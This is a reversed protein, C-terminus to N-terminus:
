SCLFAVTIDNSFSHEEEEEQGVYCGNRHDRNRGPRKSNQSPSAFPQSAVEQHAVPLITQRACYSAQERQLKKKRTNSVQM